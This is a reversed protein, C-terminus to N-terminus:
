GAPPGSIRRMSPPRCSTGDTSSDHGPYHGAVTLQNPVGNSFRYAIIESYYYFRHSPNIFGGFYGFKMNHAGTVYSM